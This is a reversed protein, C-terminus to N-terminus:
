GVGIGHDRISQERQKVYQLLSIGTEACYATVHTVPAFNHKLALFARVAEIHEPGYRAAFTKGHPPPFLHPYRQRWSEYTRRNIHCLDCLEQITM